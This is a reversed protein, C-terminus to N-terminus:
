ELNKDKITTSPQPVNHCKCLSKYHILYIMSSNLGGDSDKIRRGVIGPNTEVPIIKANVYMHVCKKVMNVRKCNTGNAKYFIASDL